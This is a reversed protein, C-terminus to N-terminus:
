PCWYVTLSSGAAALLAAIPLLRPDANAAGAREVVRRKDTGTILLVLSRADLLRSLTLSIRGYPAEPPLPDPVVEIASSRAAPNLGELLAPSRPFLSAFHGDVGMGVVVVDFPVPLEALVTRALGADPEPGPQDPVLGHVHPGAPAFRRVIEAKNSAAHHAPVWREDTPVASVRSWDLQTAGLAAYVPMPTSGGSLAMCARGRAAVAKDLCDALHRSVAKILAPKNDFEKWCITVIIGIRGHIIGTRGPVLRCLSM